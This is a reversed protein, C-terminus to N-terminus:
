KVVLDNRVQSVGTVGSAVTGARTKAEATNVFGSLPVIGKYTAIDIQFLNIDKDGILQARVKNSIVSDDIYEGTSQSTRSRTCATTAGALLAVVVLARAFRPTNM